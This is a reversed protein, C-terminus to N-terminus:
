IIMMIVGVAILGIAGFEAYAIVCAIGVLLLKKAGDKNDKV